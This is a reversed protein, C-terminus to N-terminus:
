FTVLKTFLAKPGNTPKKASDFPNNNATNIPSEVISKLCAM